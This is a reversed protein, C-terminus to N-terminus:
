WTQCLKSALVRRVNKKIYLFTVEQLGVDCFRVQPSKYINLIRGVKASTALNPGSLVTICMTAEACMYNPSTDHSEGSFPLPTSLQSVIKCGDEPFEFVLSINPLLDPNKNVEDM